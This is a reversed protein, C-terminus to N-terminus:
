LGLFENLMGKKELFTRLEETKNRWGQVKGELALIAESNAVQVRLQAIRERLLDSLQLGHERAYELDEKLVTTTVRKFVPRQLLKGVDDTHM